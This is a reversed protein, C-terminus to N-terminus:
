SAAWSGSPSPRTTGASCASGNRSGTCSRPRSRAWWGDPDAEGEEYVKPDNLLANEVFEQPPEFRERELLQELNRELSEGPGPETAM